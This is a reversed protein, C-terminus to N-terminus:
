LKVRGIETVNGNGFSPIKNVPHQKCIYILSNTDNRENTNNDKSKM